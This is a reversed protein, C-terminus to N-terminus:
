SPPEPSPRGSSKDPYRRHLEPRDSPPAPAPWAQEPLLQKLIREREVPWRLSHAWWPPAGGHGGFDPRVVSELAPSVPFPLLCSISTLHRQRNVDITTKCKNYGADKSAPCKRNVRM